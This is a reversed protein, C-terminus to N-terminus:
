AMLRTGVWQNQEGIKSHYFKIKSRSKIQREM